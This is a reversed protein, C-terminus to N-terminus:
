PIPANPSHHRLAGALLRLHPKAASLVHRLDQCLTRSVCTNRRVGVRGGALNERDVMGICVVCKLDIGSYSWFESCIWSAVAVAIM